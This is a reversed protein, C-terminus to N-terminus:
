KKKYLYLYQLEDSNGKESLTYYNHQLDFSIAEGQPEGIYPAKVPTRTLTETIHEGAKREWYFIEQRNKILVKSGDMSITAASTQRFGFIGGKILTNTKETNQPYPAVFLNSFEDRKTVFYIDKTIPDVMLGECDRSKDPYKVKIKDLDPIILKVSKGQHEPLFVPEPFRYVTYESRKQNNDGTDALYLYVEDEIPGKSIEIDEWDINSLGEIIYRAAINGTSTNILYLTSGNGSDNHAWIMGDNKVSTALGSTESLDVKGQASPMFEYVETFPMSFTNYSVDFPEYSEWFSKSPIPDNSTCAVLFIIFFPYFRM